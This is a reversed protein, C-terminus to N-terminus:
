SGYPKAIYLLRKTLCLFCLISTIVMKTNIVTFRVLKPFQHVRRTYQRKSHLTLSTAICTVATHGNYLRHVRHLVKESHYMILQEHTLVVWRKHMGKLARGQKKLFGRKYQTDKLTNYVEDTNLNYNILSIALEIPIHPVESPLEGTTM